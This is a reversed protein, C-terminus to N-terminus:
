SINETATIINWFIGCRARISIALASELISCCLSMELMLRRNFVTDEGLPLDPPFLGYRGFLDSRYSLNHIIKGKM